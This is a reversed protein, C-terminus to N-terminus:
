PTTISDPPSTPEHLALEAWTTKGWNAPTTGWRATLAEVIRLGFGGDPGPNRLRPLLRESDSVEIRLATGVLEIRARVPTAGHEAANTILETACLLADRSDFGRADLQLRLAARMAALDAVDTWTFELLTSDAAPISMVSRRTSDTTTHELALATVHAVVTLFARDEPDFDRVDGFSFGLSGTIRGGLRLPVSCLAESTERVDRLVPYDRDRASRDALYIDRGELLSARLPTDLTLDITGWQRMTEASYGVVTVFVASGDPSMVTLHGGTAGMVDAVTGCVAGGIEESTRAALLWGVLSLTAPLRPTALLVGIEARVAGLWGSSVAGAQPEVDVTLHLSPGGASRDLVQRATVVVPLLGARTRHVVHGTWTGTRTIAALAMRPDPAGLWHAGAVDAISRHGSAPGDIDYLDSALRDASTVCNDRDVILRAAVDVLGDTGRAGNGAVRLPEIGPDVEM